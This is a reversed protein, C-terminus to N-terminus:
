PVARLGPNTSAAACKTNIARAAESCIVGKLQLAEFWAGKAAAAQPQGKETLPRTLDGVTWANAFPTNAKLVQGAEVAAAEPDRPAANAHRILVVKTIGANALLSGLEGSARGSGADSPTPPAQPTAAPAAKKSKSAGSGM